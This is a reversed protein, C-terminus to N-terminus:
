KVPAYYFRWNMRGRPAADGNVYFDMPDDAQRNDSWKFEVSFAKSVDIGLEEATVSYVAKRGNSEFASDRHTLMHTYGMANVVKGPVRLFLNMSKADVKRIPEVTEAFFRVTGDDGVSVRLKSFENVM